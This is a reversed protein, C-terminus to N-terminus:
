LTACEQIALDLEDLQDLVQQAVEIAAALEERFSLLRNLNDRLDKIAEEAGRLVGDIQVNFDGLPLCGAILDLPVLQSGSQVVALAALAAELAIRAPLVAIDRQILQAQFTLIQANLLARYSAIVGRLANLTGASLACLIDRVCPYLPFAAM